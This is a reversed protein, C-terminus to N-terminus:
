EGEMALNIGTEVGELFSKVEEYSGRFVTSVLGTARAADTQESGVTVMIVGGPGTAMYADWGFGVRKAVRRLRAVDRVKM